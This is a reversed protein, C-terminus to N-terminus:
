FYSLSSSTVDELLDIEKSSNCSANASNCVSDILSAFSTEEDLFFIESKSFSIEFNFLSISRTLVSTDIELDLLSIWAEVIVLSFTFEHLHQLLYTSSILFKFFENALYEM